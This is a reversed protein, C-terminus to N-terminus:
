PATLRIRGYLIDNGTLSTVTGKKGAYDAATSRDLFPGYVKNPNAFYVYFANRNM